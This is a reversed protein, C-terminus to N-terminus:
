KFKAPITGIEMSTKRLNSFIIEIRPWIDKFM